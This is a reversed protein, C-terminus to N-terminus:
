EADGFTFMGGDAAALWYGHGSDTAAGTVVPSVLRTGTMSGKHLAQGFAYVSGDAGFQWYGSAEPAVGTGGAEARAAPLWLVASVIVALAVGVRGGGSRM